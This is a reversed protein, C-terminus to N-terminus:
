FPKLKRKVKRMRWMLSTRINNKLVESTKEWKEASAPLTMSLWDALVRSVLYEHILEKLKRVTTMSFTIPLSLTIIYEEPETLIDDLSVVDDPIDEKVYPYLFEVCESYVLNLIRTVRDVNGEQVIDFVQHKSHGEGEQLVDAEVYSNNSIDYLLQARKFTLTVIRKEEPRKNCYGM